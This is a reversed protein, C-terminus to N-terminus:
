GKEKRMREAEQRNMGVQYMPIFKREGDVTIRYGYLHYLKKNKGRRWQRFPVLVKGPQNGQGGKLSMMEGCLGVAYGPNQPDPLFDDAPRIAPPIEDTDEDAENHIPNDALHDQLADWAEGLERQLKRYLSKAEPRDATSLQEWRRAEAEQDPTWPRTLTQTSM